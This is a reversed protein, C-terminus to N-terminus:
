GIHFLRSSFRQVCLLRCGLVIGRSQGRMDSEGEFRIISTIQSDETPLQVRMQALYFLTEIDDNMIPTIVKFQPARM